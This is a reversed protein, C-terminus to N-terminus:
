FNQVETMECTNNENESALFEEISKDSLPYWAFHALCGEERSDAAAVDGTLGKKMVQVEMEDLLVANTTLFLNMVSM